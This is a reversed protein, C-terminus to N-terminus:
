RKAPSYILDWKGVIAAESVGQLRYHRKFGRKCISGGILSGLCLAVVGVVVLWYWAFM